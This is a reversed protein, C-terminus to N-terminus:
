ENWLCGGWCGASSIFVCCHMLHETHSIMDNAGFEGNDSGVEADTVTKCNMWMAVAPHGPPRPNETGCHGRHQEQAAPHCLWGGGRLM